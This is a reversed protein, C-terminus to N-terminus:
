GPCAGANSGTGIGSDEELDVAHGHAVTIFWAPLFDPSGQEVAGLVGALDSSQGHGKVPNGVPRYYVVFTATAALSILVPTQEPSPLPM